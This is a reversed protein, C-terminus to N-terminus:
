HFGCFLSAIILNKVIYILAFVNDKFHIIQYLEGKSLGKDPVGIHSTKRM